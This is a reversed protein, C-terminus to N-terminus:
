PAGFADRAVRTALALVVDARGTSEHPSRTLGVLTVDPAAPLALRCLAGSRVGDATMVDPLLALALSTEVAARALDFDPVSLAVGLGQENAWASGHKAGGAGVEVYRASRLATTPADRAALPHRTSVFAATSLRALTVCEIQQRPAPMRAFAVDIRGDLLAEVVDEESLGVVSPILAPHSTALAEVLRPLVLATFPEFSAIRAKGILTEGGIALLSEDIVRMSTRVGLLLHRGAENLRMSRGHRDFLPQGVDAELASLTRSVASPTVFLRKAARSIHETEAIVRFVPLYNWLSSLRKARDM